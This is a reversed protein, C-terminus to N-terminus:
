EDDTPHQWCYDGAEDVTRSCDGDACTIEGSEGEPDPDVVGGDVDITEEEIQDGFSRLEADTADFTEGPAVDDDGVRTLTGTGRWIHTM